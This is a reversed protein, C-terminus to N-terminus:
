ESNQRVEGRKEHVRKKHMFYSTFSIELKSVNRNITYYIGLNTHDMTYFIKLEKRNIEETM